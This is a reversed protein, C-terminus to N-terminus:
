TNALSITDTIQNALDQNVKDRQKNYEQISEHVEYSILKEFLPPGSIDKLSNLDPFAVAKAMAIGEGLDLDEFKPIAQM